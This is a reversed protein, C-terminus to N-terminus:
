RVETIRSGAAALLNATLQYFDERPGPMEGADLRVCPSPRASGTYVDFGATGNGNVRLVVFTRGSSLNFGAQRAAYEIGRSGV